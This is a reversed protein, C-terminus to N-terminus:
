RGTKAVDETISREDLGYQEGHEGMGAPEVHVVIDYVSDIREKVAREVRDAIAHAERVTMSGDVEIDLDIDWTNAIRRVRAKHPNGAGPVSRVAEFVLRYTAHSTNGDMLEANSEFFIGIASKMVWIGVLIAVIKDVAPVGFLRSVLLGVLVAISMIVDNRMNVGNAVLLQSGHRRGARSQSWALLLKGAISVVTATLAFAGPISAAIGSLMNRVAQVALQAGAFFIAFALAVTAVTEARGHGWPHEADSPRSAWRVTLLAVFSILVDTSSDIGDGLVSLSGSAVGAGIKLVALLANGILSITTANRIARSRQDM